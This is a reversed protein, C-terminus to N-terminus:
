AYSIQLNLLQHIAASVAKRNRCEAGYVKRTARFGNVGINGERSMGWQNAKHNKMLRRKPSVEITRRGDRRGLNFEFGQVRKDM